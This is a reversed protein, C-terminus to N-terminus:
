PSKNQVTVLINRSLFFAIIKGIRQANKFCIKFTLKIFTMVSAENAIKLTSLCFCCLQVNEALTSQLKAFLWAVAISYKNTIFEILALMTPIIICYQEALCRPVDTITDSNCHQKMCAILRRNYQFVNRTHDM